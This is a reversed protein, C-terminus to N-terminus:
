GIRILLDLAGCEILVGIKGVLRWCFRLDALAWRPDGSGADFISYISLMVVFSIVLVLSLDSGRTTVLDFPISSVRAREKPNPQVEM